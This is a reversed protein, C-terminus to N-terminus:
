VAGAASGPSGAAAGTGNAGSGNRVTSSVYGPPDDRNEVTVMVKKTDAYAKITKLTEAATTRVDPALTGQNIMVRASGLFM